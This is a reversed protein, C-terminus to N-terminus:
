LIRISKSTGLKRNRNLPISYRIFLEHSGNSVKSIESTSLDYSYGADINRIKVGLLFVFGDGKRWSIGGNFMKNYEVKATLDWQYTVEDWKLLTSPQLEILPNNLKINYGGMLFYTRPIFSTTEDDLDFKPEWLHSASVGIYYKPTTWYIGLGGDVKKDGGGAPKEEKDHYDSDPIHVESADFDINMMGAQLGVQLTKNGKFKFKYTYQGLYSTNSFLGAKETTFLVGVGHDKGLFQVPMNLSVITNVPARTIGVWQRRYLMSSEINNTEAIAAPNYFNKMRWYQSIQADWQAYVSSLSCFFFVSLLIFLKFRM